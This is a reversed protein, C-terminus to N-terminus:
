PTVISDKIEIPQDILVDIEAQKINDKANLIDIQSQIVGAFTDSNLDEPSVNYEQEYVTDDTDNSFIVTVKLDPRLGTKDIKSYKSNWM